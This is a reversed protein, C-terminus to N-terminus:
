RGRAAGIRRGLEDAAARVAGAIEAAPLTRPSDDPYTVAIAAAPWGVHDLVAVGVSALGPTVEGAEAAWGTERVEHLLQKLRSARWEGAADPDGRWAFAARDPYLARLQAPPLAALMARGTATLYAPLRVGVDTVLSPRRPAREEVLYLVDRGHLVALHGSEGLRDVLGAVLPGGLRALPQQRSFGSSLEFAAVGLGYRREEPLHVVFGREQMVALLHYVTSRPLELAAAITAAPVPGRQHALHSLIALAQDAAPVKAKAM